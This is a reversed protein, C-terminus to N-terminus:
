EVPRTMHVAVTGQEHHTEKEISYGLAGYFAINEAM